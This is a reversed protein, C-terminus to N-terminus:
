HSLLVPVTMHELIHRTVGGLVMERVRSHGYAGMVLLDVGLDAARSLLMEGVGMDTAQVRHIEARVGHRELWAGLDLDGGRDRQEPMNVVLAHVRSARLLVPLADRVARASERTANWGIMVDRGVPRRAGIYPIVLVPAGSEFVLKDSVLSAVSGPDDEDVQGVVVLDCYLSYLRLTDLTPGHARYWACPVGTERVSDNFTREAADAAETSVQEQAELLETWAGSPVGTGSMVPPTALPIVFIGTLRADFDRALAVAAAVREPAARSGDVHVVISKM